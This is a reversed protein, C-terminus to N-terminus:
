DLILRDRRFRAMAIAILVADLIIVFVLAGIAIWFFNTTTLFVVLAQRWANPLLPIFFLPLFIVLFVTGVTQQAQRVTSANLSVLVGIGAALAAVLFSTLLAGFGILAPYLVLQGKGAVLNITVLGVLMGTIATGWGYLIASFIKGLLIARDSLRSALLTELTHREREGAFSDAIVNNVLMFPLWCWYFLGAGTEVWRAGFQIPMLIGFIAIFIGLSTLTGRRTGRQLFLERLEKWMITLIDTIM